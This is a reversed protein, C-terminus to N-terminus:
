LSDLKVGDTGTGANNGKIEGTAPNYIWGVIETGDKATEDPATGPVDTVIMIGRGGTYPNAPITGLLYPGLPKTGIAGTSGDKDSSLLLANRFDDTKTSGSAPYKFNHQIMYFHIQSRMIQLDQALVSEKADDNTSTFQPLVTAALIGLVVVVILVEVLTFGARKGKQQKTKMM